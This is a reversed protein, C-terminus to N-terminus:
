LELRVPWWRFLCQRDNEYKFRVLLADASKTLEQVPDEDFEPLRGVMQALMEGLAMGM